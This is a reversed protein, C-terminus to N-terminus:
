HKILCDRNTHYRWGIPPTLGGVVNLHSGFSVKQKKNWINIAGVGDRDFHFGCKCKYSRNNPNNLEGCIPCTQSTYYEPVELYTGGISEFKYKIYKAVKQEPNMQIAQNNKGCDTNTHIGACEGIVITGINNEVAYDVVARSTKHCIDKIRNDSKKTAKRGARKIKKYKRSHKTLGALKNQTKGKNKERLRIESKIAKGSYTVTEKGDFTTITRKQGLDGGLVKTKDL